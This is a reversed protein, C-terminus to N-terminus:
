FSLVIVRTDYHKNLSSISLYALASFLGHLLGVWQYHWSIPDTPRYIFLVGTFGGLICLWSWRTLREGMWWSALLAIYFTNMSNYTMAAGLPVHLIVFLLTYLAFTGLMGRAILLGLRGGTQQPPKRFLSLSLFLLGIANRYLVLQPSNFSPKLTKVFGSMASFALSALLMYYIGKYKSTDTPM